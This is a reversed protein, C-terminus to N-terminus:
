FATCKFQNAFTKCKLPEWCHRTTYFQDPGEYCNVRWQTYQCCGEDIPPCGTSCGWGNEIQPGECPVVESVCPLAQAYAYAAALGLPVMALYKSIKM